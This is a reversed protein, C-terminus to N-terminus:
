FQQPRQWRGAVEVAEGVTECWVGDDVPDGDRFVDRGDVRHWWVRWGHRGPSRYIAPEIATYAMFDVDPHVDVAVVAMRPLVTFTLGQRGCEAAVVDTPSRRYGDSLREVLAAIVYRNRNLTGM